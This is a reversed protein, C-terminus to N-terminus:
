DSGAAFLADQPHSGGGERGQNTEKEYQISDHVTQRNDVIPVVGWLLEAPTVGQERSLQTVLKILQQEMDGAFM